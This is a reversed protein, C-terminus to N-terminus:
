PSQASLDDLPDIKKGDVTQKWGDPPTLPIGSIRLEYQIAQMESDTTQVLNLYNQKAVANSGTTPEIKLYQEYQWTVARVMDIDAKTGAHSVRLLAVGSLRGILTQSRGMMLRAIKGCAEFRKGGANPRSSKRCADFLSATSPVATAAAEDFILDLQDGIATSADAGNLPHVDPLPPPYRRFVDRWAAIAQGLHENYRESGAVRRLGAETGRPDGKRITSVWAVGNDPELRALAARHDACRQGARCRQDQLPIYAWLTQVVRDQPAAQAARQLILGRERLAAGSEPRTELLQSGLAWDRPSSSKQLTLALNHRYAQLDTDSAGAAAVPAASIADGGVALFAGCLAALWIPVFKRGAHRSRM